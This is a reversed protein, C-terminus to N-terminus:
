VFCHLAFLRDKGGLSSYALVSDEHLYGSSEPSVQWGAAHVGAPLTAPVHQWQSPNDWYSSIASSPGLVSAGAVGGHGLLLGDDGDHECEDSDLLASGDGDSMMVTRRSRIHPAVALTRSRSGDSDNPHRLPSVVAEECESDSGSTTGRDPSAGRGTTDSNGSADADDADQANFLVSTDRQWYTSGAGKVIPLAQRVSPRRVATLSEM